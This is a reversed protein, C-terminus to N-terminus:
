QFKLTATRETGLLTQQADSVFTVPWICDMIAYVCPETGNLTKHANFPRLMVDETNITGFMDM